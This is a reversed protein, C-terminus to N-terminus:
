FHRWLWGEANLCLRFKSRAQSAAKSLFLSNRALFFGSAYFRWRILGALLGDVVTLNVRPTTNQLM